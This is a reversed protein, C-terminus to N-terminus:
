TSRRRIHDPSSWWCTSAGPVLSGQPKPDTATPAPTTYSAASLFVRHTKPDVTLTKAAAQTAVNAVV